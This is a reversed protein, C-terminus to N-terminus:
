HGPTPLEVLTSAGLLTGSRCRRRPNANAETPSQHIDQTGSSSAEVAFPGRQSSRQRVRVRAVREEHTGTLDDPELLAV